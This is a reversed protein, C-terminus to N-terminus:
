AEIRRKHAPASLEPVPVISSFGRAKAAKYYAWWLHAAAGRHPRWCEAIATLERASPRSKLGFALRVAEQLALDGAPWADAHGLCFLLYIDATWPGIGHVAVLHAHAADAGMGALATLNLTGARLAKGIAKLTRIKPASLGLRQLRDARARCVTDHRFPDFAGSLRGWIAAASAISLQQGVIITALGEFGEARRRLAPQGAARAVEQLRSDAAVLAALAADLDTQTALLTTM